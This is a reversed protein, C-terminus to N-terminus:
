LTRALTSLVHAHAASIAKGSQANLENQFAGLAGTKARLNGRKEADEAADLKATLANTIGPKSSYFASLVRVSEYSFLFGPSGTLDARTIVIKADIEPGFQGPTALLPAFPAVVENQLLQTLTLSQRERGALMSFISDVIGAQQLYPRVVPIADPTQDLLPTVTEAAFALVRIPLQNSGTTPPASPPPCTDQIAAGMTIVVVCTKDVCYEIQGAKVACLRFNAAQPDGEPGPIVTYIECFGLDAAIKDPSENGPMFGPLAPDALSAPYFGFQARYNNIGECLSGGQLKLMQANQAAERVKQVAPVLLAILVAIIAIVVLLEILTFGAARKRADARMQRVPSDDILVPAHLQAQSM